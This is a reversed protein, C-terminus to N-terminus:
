TTSWSLAEWFGLAKLDYEEAVHRRVFRALLRRHAALHRESIEPIDEGGLLHEL